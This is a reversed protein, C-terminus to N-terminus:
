DEKPTGDKQSKQEERVYPPHEKLYNLVSWRQGNRKHHERRIWYAMEEDWRRDKLEYCERCCYCRQCELKFISEVYFPLDIGNVLENTWRECSFCYHSEAM